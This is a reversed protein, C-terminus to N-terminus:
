GAGVAAVRQVPGRDAVGGGGALEQLGLRVARCSDADPNRRLALYAM